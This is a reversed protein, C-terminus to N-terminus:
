VPETLEPPIIPVLGEAELIPRLWDTTPDSITWVKVGPHQARLANLIGREGPTTSWALHYAVPDGQPIQGAPYLGVDMLENSMGALGGEARLAARFSARTGAPVIIYSLSM